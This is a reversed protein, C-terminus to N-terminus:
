RPAAHSALRDMAEQRPLEAGRRYAKLYGDQGLAGTLVPVLRCVDPDGEDFVGRVVHSMGLATAAGEPDGELGRLRALLEAGRALANANANSFVGRLARPLLERAQEAAGEAIHVGLRSSAILDGNLGPPGPLRHVVTELEDLVQHARELDGAHRHVEALPFLMTAELRRHGHEHGQRRAARVDQLAGELDGGRMRNQALHSKTIFLHEETGLEAAIAVARECYAIAQEHEARLGHVRSQRVLGMMLGWRDGVQEFLRLAEDRHRAGTEQDGQETLLFDYAWNAGARVWPDPSNLAELDPADGSALKSMRLLPLATHFQTVGPRRLNELVEPENGRGSTARVVEFAARADAPLEEGFALVENLFANFQTSMGRMSWYWFMSRVFRASAEADGAEIAARLAAVLNDHEADFVEVARLQQRTRLLPENQEALALFYARFRGTVPTASGAAAYARITELMRYRDGVQQIMSKEVLTSAVYVLDGVPLSADSCISELAALDAGGPFAALRGALVREPEELLDWSWEVMARLTRQRPLATRSGSTLMRFRDDLRQSIQAVSMARLKAAALELALPMGDLRRCIEVTPEVTEADLAFAARVSAAREVFLRVAASEAAEALDANEVPLDLPGLHCLAEGIIALPERSTALVRLQPLRVLLQETLQAAAEVLHECNDLVLVAPGVDLLGCLRALAPAQPKLGGEFLGGCASLVADAVQDPQVVGALPVFWVREEMRDAAELALRTKGAGGPGIITVLRAGSMLQDLAGLERERGVFSTLRAPIRNPAAQPQAAPRDLEGRLLALHVARLEPSPDMGLEGALRGRIEEYVALAESQRGAASLARIRLEALREALPRAAAAAGLDVLVETARGLRVQADFYDESASARLEELRAAVDRAFPAELVDALAAGRWLDLAARLLAAAERPRDAALERRAQEALQEFRHADVDERRVPLRYGGAVLEVTERGGLTRRLRSVLGHLAGAAEAPPDEGWIGNVLSGASVPRGAELALAALLMRLRAGPIDIPAADDSVAEIPGLLSIQM